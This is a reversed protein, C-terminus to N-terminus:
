KVGEKGYHFLKDLLIQYTPQANRIVSVLLSATSTFRTRTDCDSLLTFAFNALIAAIVWRSNSDAHYSDTNFETNRVRVNRIVKLLTIQDSKNCTVKLLRQTSQEDSASSQSTVDSCYRIHYLELTINCKIVQRM